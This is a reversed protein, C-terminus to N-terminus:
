VGWFKRRFGSHRSTSGSRTDCFITLKKRFLPFSPKFKFTTISVKVSSKTYFYKLTYHKFVFVDFEKWNSASDFTGFSGFFHLLHRRTVERQGVPRVKLDHMRHTNQCTESTKKLINANIFNTNLICPSLLYSHVM